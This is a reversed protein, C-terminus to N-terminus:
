GHLQKRVEKTRLLKADNSHSANMSQQLVHKGRALLAELRNISCLTHSDAYKYSFGSMDPLRFPVQKDFLCTVIFLLYAHRYLPPRALVGPRSCTSLHTKKIKLSYKHANGNANQENEGEATCPSGVSDNDISM